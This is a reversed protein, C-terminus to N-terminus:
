ANSNRPRIRHSCVVFFLIFVRLLRYWIDSIMKTWFLKNKTEHIRSIQISYISSNNYLISTANLYVSRKNVPASEFCLGQWFIMQLCTNPLDCNKFHEGTSPEPIRRGYGGPINYCFRLLYHSPWSGEAWCSFRLIRSGDFDLRLGSGEFREGLPGSWEWESEVVSLHVLHVTPNVAPTSFNINSFESVSPQQIETRHRVFAM